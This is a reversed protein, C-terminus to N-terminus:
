RGGAQLRPWERLAQRIPRDVLLSWLLAAHGHPWRGPSDSAVHDLQAGILAPEITLRDDRTLTKRLDKSVEGLAPELADLDARTEAIQTPVLDAPHALITPDAQADGTAAPAQQGSVRLRPPLSHLRHLVAQPERTPKPRDARDAHRYASRLHIRGWRGLRQIVQLFLDKDLLQPLDRRHRFIGSHQQDDLGEVAIFGLENLPEPLCVLDTRRHAAGVHAKHRVKEV